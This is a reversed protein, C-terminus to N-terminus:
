LISTFVGYDLYEVTAEIIIHSSPDDPFLLHCWDSKSMKHWVM